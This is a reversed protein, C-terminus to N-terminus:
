ENSGNDIELNAGPARSGPSHSRAPAAWWNPRREAFPVLEALGFREAYRESVGPCRAFAPCRLCDEHYRQVTAEAAAIAYVHAGNRDDLYHTEGFGLRGVNDHLPDGSVCNPVSEWQLVLGLARAHTRAGRIHLRAQDLRLQIPEWDAGQSNLSPFCIKATARTGFREHLLDLWSDLREVNLTSLVLNVTVEARAALLNEIGALTQEFAVPPAGSMGNAIGPTDGHLSVVARQLGGSRAREAFDARHFSRGHTNLDWLVSLQHLRAVVAFFGPHITPEGGTLVVRRFGLAYVAEVRRIAEATAIHRLQPLGTNSCMPCAHNCHEGLRVLVNSTADVPVEDVRRKVWM